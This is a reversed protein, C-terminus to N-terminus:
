EGGGSRHKKKCSANCYKVLKCATCGKLDDSGKGCAACNSQNNEDASMTVVKSVPFAQETLFMCLLLVWYIASHLITSILVKVVAAAAVVISMNLGDPAINM